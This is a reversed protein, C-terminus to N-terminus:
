EARRADLPEDEPDPVEEFLAEMPVHLAKAVQALTTYSPRYSDPEKLMKSILQDHVGSRRVLWSQTRGKQELVEKVRLRYM